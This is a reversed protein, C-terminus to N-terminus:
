YCQYSVTKKINVGCIIKEILDMHPRIDELLKFAEQSLIGQYSGYIAYGLKTEFYSLKRDLTTRSIFLEDAVVKKNTAKNMVSLMKYLDNVYDM